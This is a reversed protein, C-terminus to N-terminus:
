RAKALRTSLSIRAAELADIAVPNTTAELLRDVLNIRAGLEKVSESEAPTAELYNQNGLAVHFFRTEPRALLPSTPKLYSKALHLTHGALALGVNSWAGEAIKHGRVQALLEDAAAPSNVAVEALMRQYIDRGLTIRGDPNQALRILTPVGAQEPWHALTIAVYDFWTNAYREIVALEPTGGFTQVIEFLPSVDRGDWNPTAALALTDQAASLFKARHKGPEVRELFRALTALEAPDATAQFNQLALAVAEAGGTECLVEILALRLSAVGTLEVSGPLDFVVDQHKGLFDRIAPLAGAGQTKLQALTGKWAGAQEATILGQSLDVAALKAILQAATSTATPPNGRASAAPGKAEECSTLALSALLALNLLVRPLTRIPSRDHRDLPIM